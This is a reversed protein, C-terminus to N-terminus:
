RKRPNTRRAYATRTDIRFQLSLPAGDIVFVDDVGMMGNVLVARGARDIGYVAPIDVGRPWAIYTQSGDDSVSLPQLARDGGIKYRSLRRSASSVDVYGDEATAVVPQPYTFTVTYPMDGTPGSMAELDFSYTRVTTVVTMNTALGGQAPKLFLRNGDGSVSVQWAAPDGLAVNEVKEDASLELMLEYGPAGRLRFIQGEAYAITQLRPDELGPQPMVQAHAPAVAMMLGLFAAIFMRM